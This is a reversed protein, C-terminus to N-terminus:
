RVLAVNTLGYYGARGGGGAAPLIRQLFIGYVTTQGANDIDWRSILFSAFGQIVVTSRGNVDEYTNVVPAVVIMPCHPDLDDPTCRYGEAREQRRRLGQPTHNGLNGPGTALSDTARLVSGHYDNAVWDTYDEPNMSGSLNVIQFNGQCCGDSGGEPPAEKLVYERGYVFDQAEPGWPVLNTAAAVPEGAATAQVSVRIVHFGLLRAFFVPVDRQLRVSLRTHHDGIVVQSDADGAGNAALYAYVTARAAEPSDPLSQAGALAALDAASQLTARQVGLFGTDVAIAALCLLVTFTLALMVSVTGRQASM